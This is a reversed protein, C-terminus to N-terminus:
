LCLKCTKKAEEAKNIQAKFGLIVDGYMNLRPRDNQPVQKCKLM